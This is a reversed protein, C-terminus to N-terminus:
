KRGVDIVKYLISYSTVGVMGDEDGEMKGLLDGLLIGWLTGLPIM